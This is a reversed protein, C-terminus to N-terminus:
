RRAVLGGLWGVIVDAIEDANDEMMLMHGNGVIGHDGLWLHEAVGENSRVWEVIEADVERSHDRDATGTVVLVPKGKLCNPKEVRVQSGRVNSREYVMQAGYANLSSVYHDISGMPFRNSAGILKEIARERNMTTFGTRLIARPGFDTRIVVSHEEEYELVPIPQINGPPGPAVGVVAVIQQARLELVRWGLAGGMSHTLLVVPENISEIM